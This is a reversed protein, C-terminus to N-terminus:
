FHFMLWPSSLSATVLFDLREKVPLENVDILDQRWLDYDEDPALHATMFGWLERLDGSAMSTGQACYAKILTSFRENPVVQKVELASTEGCTQSLDDSFDHFALMYVASSLTNASSNQWGPNVPDPNYYGMLPALGIPGPFEDIGGGVYGALSFTDNSSMMSREILKSLESYGRLRVEGDIVPEPIPTPPTPPTAASDHHRKHGCSVLTSTILLGLFMKSPLIRTLNKMVM